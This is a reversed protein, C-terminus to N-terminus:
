PATLAIPAGDLTYAPAGANFTIGAFSTGSPFDNSLSTVTSAGFVLADGPQATYPGGNDWNPGNWTNSTPAAGWNATAARAAPAVIGMAALAAVAAASLVTVQKVRRQM